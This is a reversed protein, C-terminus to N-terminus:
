FKLRHDVPVAFPGIRSTTKKQQSRWNNNNDGNNVGKSNKVDTNVPTQPVALRRLDGPSSKPNQGNKAISNNPYDRGTRWNGLRGPRNM